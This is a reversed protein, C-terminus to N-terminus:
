APRSPPGRRGRAARTRRRCAGREGGRHLPGRDLAPAHRPRGIEVPQDRHVVLHGRDGLAGERYEAAEARLDLPGAGVEGLDVVDHQGGAAEAHDRAVGVLERAPFRLHLLPEHPVDLLAERQGGLLDAVALVSRVRRQCRTRANMSVRSRSIRGVTAIGRERHLLGVRGLDVALREVVVGLPEEQGVADRDGASGTMETGHPKVLLPSGTPRCITPRRCWSAATSRAAAAKSAAAGQASRIGGTTGATDDQHAAGLARPGGCPTEKTM